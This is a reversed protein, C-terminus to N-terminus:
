QREIRRDQSTVTTEYVPPFPTIKSAIKKNYIYLGISISGINTYNDSMSTGIAVPMLM